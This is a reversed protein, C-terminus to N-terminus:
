EYRSFCVPSSCHGVASQNPCFPTAWQNGLCSIIPVWSAFREIFTMVSQKRSEEKMRRELIYNMFSAKIVSKKNALSSEPDRLVPLDSLLHTM